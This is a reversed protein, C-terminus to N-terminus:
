RDYYKKGQGLLEIVQRRKTIEREMAQVHNMFINAKLLSRSYKHSTRQLRVKIYQEMRKTGDEFEHVFEDGCHKDKM